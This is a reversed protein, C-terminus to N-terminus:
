VRELILDSGAWRHFRYNHLPLFSVQDRWSQRFCVAAHMLAENMIRMDFEEQGEEKMRFQKLFGQTIDAIMGPTCNDPLHMLNVMIHGFDHLNPPVNVMGRVLRQVRQMPEGGPLVVLKPVM